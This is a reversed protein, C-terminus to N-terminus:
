SGISGRFLGSRSSRLINMWNLSELGKWLCGLHLRSKHVHGSFVGDDVLLTKRWGSHPARQLSYDLIIVSRSSWWGNALQCVFHWRESWQDKKPESLGFSRMTLNSYGFRLIPLNISHRAIVRVFFWDWQRQSVDCNFILVMWSIHFLSVHRSMSPLFM